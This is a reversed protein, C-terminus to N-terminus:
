GPHRESPAVTRGCCQRWPLGSGCSCRSDPEPAAGSRFDVTVVRGYAGRVAPVPIRADVKAFLEIKEACTRGELTGAAKLGLWADALSRTVFDREDEDRFGNRAGLYRSVQMSYFARYDDHDECAAKVMGYGNVLRRYVASARGRPALKQASAFSKAALDKRGLRLLAVGLWYLRAPLERSGAGATDVALRLQRLADLDRHASLARLGARFASPERHRTNM